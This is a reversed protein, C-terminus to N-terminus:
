LRHCSHNSDKYNYTQQGTPRCVSDIKKSASPFISMLCINPIMYNACSTQKKIGKRGDKRQLGIRRKSKQPSSDVEM